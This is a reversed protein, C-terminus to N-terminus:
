KHRCIECGMCETFREKFIEKITNILNSNKFETENHWIIRKPITSILISMVKDEETLLEDYLEKDNVELYIENKRFDYFSFSKDCNEKIHILDLLPESLSVYETIMKIFERYERESYLEEIAECLMLKLKQRYKPLRFRLFGEVSITNETKLYNSINKVIYSYDNYNVSFETKREASKLIEKRECESFENFESDLIEALLQIDYNNLIWRGLCDSIVENSLKEKTKLYLFYRIGRRSELSETCICDLTDPIIISTFTKEILSLDHESKIILCNQM